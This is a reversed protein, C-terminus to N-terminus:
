NMTASLQSKHKNFKIDWENGFQEYVNIVSLRTGAPCSLYINNEELTVVLLL